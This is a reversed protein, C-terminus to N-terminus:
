PGMSAVPRQGLMVRLGVSEMVALDHGWQLQQCGVAPRLQVLVRWSRLTMAGNFSMSTATGLGTSGDRWSRLTMAGNFRLRQCDCVAGGDAREMVALDHGWQLEVEDVLVLGNKAREMVALDHGWQLSMSSSSSRSRSRSEMVALDHGWQLRAEVGFVAPVGPSEMVALDHGWQLKWTLRYTPFGNM